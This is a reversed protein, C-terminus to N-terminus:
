NTLAAKKARIADLLEDRLRRTVISHDILPKFAAYWANLDSLSSIKDVEAMLRRQAEAETTQKPPEIFDRNTTAEPNDELKEHTAALQPALDLLRNLGERAKAATEQDFGYAANIYLQLAQWANLILDFHAQTKCNPVAQKIAAELVKVPDTAGESRAGTQKEFDARAEAKLGELDVGAPQGLAQLLREIYAEGGEKWLLDRFLGRLARHFDEDGHNRRIHQLTEVMQELKIEV